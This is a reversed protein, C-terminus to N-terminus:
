HLYHNVMDYIGFYITGQKPDGSYKIMFYVSTLLLISLILLINKSLDKM